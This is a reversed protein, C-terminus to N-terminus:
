HVVTTRHTAFELNRNLTAENSHINAPQQWDDDYNYVHADVKDCAVQNPIPSADVGSRLDSACAYGVHIYM